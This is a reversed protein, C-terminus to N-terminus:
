KGGFNVRATIGFYRDAERPIIYRFSGGPGGSVISSAFSTDFVNKVQATIKWGDDPDALAASLDMTAYGDVTSGRRVVHNPSLEYLQDSQFAIQSGLEVNAFGGTEITWDAGLSAKWKPANALPTGSPVVNAPNGGVPLRFRDVKADSYAIGGTLNFNRAPRLLFDVEFGRTSVTGANTLRTTVVGAVLDPNNAQYNKYKAYYLALNVIAAGDLFTNKAGIEFANVTEADIVNTDDIGALGALPPVASKYMNFFVNYAPGKYGRTYSGYLMTQESLDFQVGAKGSVNSKDTKGRFSFNPRIGPRADPFNSTRDLFVSLDDNTWRLGGILRFAESINITAQGFVAFNKFTSGFNASGIPNTFTSVGPTTSCPTLGAAVPALTSATCSIVNRTFTRESKARSYYAGLM